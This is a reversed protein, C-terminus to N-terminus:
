IGKQRREQTRVFNQIKARRRQLNKTRRSTTSFAGERRRVLIFWSFFEGEYERPSLVALAFAHRLSERSKKLISRAAVSFKCQGMVSVDRRSEKKADVRTSSGKGRRSGEAQGRSRNKKGRIHTHARM